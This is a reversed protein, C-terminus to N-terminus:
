GCDGDGAAEAAAAVASTAVEAPPEDASRLSSTMCPAGGAAPLRATTVVVPFCERGGEEADAELEDEPLLSARM